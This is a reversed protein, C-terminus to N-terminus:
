EVDVETDPRKGYLNQRILARLAGREKRTPSTAPLPMPTTGEFRAQARKVAAVYRESYRPLAKARRQWRRVRVPGTNYAALALREDGRFIRLLYALYITGAEINFAPDEVDYDDRGMRRALSAATKPMLQMLGRAGAYSKADTRFSSEVAIVGLVLSPRVGHRKAIGIALTELEAHSTPRLTRAPGACASLSCLLIIWRSVPSDDRSSQLHGFSRRNKAFLQGQWWLNRFKTSPELV